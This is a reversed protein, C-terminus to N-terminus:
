RTLIEVRAGPFLNLQGDTVIEENVTLGDIIQMRTKDLLVTKVPRPQGSKFAAKAADTDQGATHQVQETVYVYQGIVGELVAKIPIILADPVAEMVIYVRVFQGPWLREDSNEFRARMAITGTERDVTNDIVTLVGSVPEGRDGEPLVLVEVPGKRMRQNIEPLYKEPVAFSVEAPSITNIVLLPLDNAKVINGPDVLIEGIRGAIPAHIKTHGLQVEASEIAAQDQKITADLAVVESLSQEYQQKSLFDGAALSKYRTLDQRAQDLRAKDRDLVAGAQNLEAQLTRQDLRFLLDGAQVYHGPQVFCEMLQGNVQASLKVSASAEVHGVVALTQQAAGQEVLATRVPVPRSASSNEGSENKCGTNLFLFSILIVWRFCHKLM